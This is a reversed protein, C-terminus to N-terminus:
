FQNNINKATIRADLLSASEGNMILAGKYKRLMLNGKM